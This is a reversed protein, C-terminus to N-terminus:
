RNSGRSRLLLHFADTADKFLAERKWVWTKCAFATARVKDKPSLPARVAARSVGACQRWAQFLKRLGTRRHHQRMIEDVDRKHTSTAPTNRRFFMVEPIEVFKGALSLEAMLVMDSAVYDDMAGARLLPERRFVGNMANNLRLRETVARLREIPDDDQIDLGDEYDEGFAPDTEFLRTRPYCLVCDPRADLVEVCARLLDPHVLDNGSAWKFYPARAETAVVHYNRPAGINTTQRIVRIREDNRAFELAIEHSGDTSANDSVILEFETFSQGLMSELAAPLYAAGNYVPM